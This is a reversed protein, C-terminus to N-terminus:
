GERGGTSAQKWLTIVELLICSATWDPWVWHTSPCVSKMWPYTHHNNSLEDGCGPTNYQLCLTTWSFSADRKRASVFPLKKGTFSSMGPIYLTFIECGPIIMSSTGFICPIAHSKGNLLLMSCYKLIIIKTQITGDSRTYFPQFSPKCKKEEDPM